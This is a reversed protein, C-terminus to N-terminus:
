EIPPLSNQAEDALPLTVQTNSEEGKGIEQALKSLRRESTPDFTNLREVFTRWALQAFAFDETKPGFRDQTKEAPHLFVPRFFRKEYFRSEPRFNFLVIGLFNSTEWDLIIQACISDGDM